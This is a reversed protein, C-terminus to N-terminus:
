SKANDFGARNDVRFNLKVNPRRYSSAYVGKESSVLLILWGLFGYSGKFIAEIPGIEGAQVWLCPVGESKIM